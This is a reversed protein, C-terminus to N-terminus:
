KQVRDNDRERKIETDILMKIIATRPLGTRETQEIIWKSQITNLSLNYIKVWDMAVSREISNPM